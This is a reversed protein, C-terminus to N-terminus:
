DHLLIHACCGLYRGIRQLVGQQNDQWDLRRIRIGELFAIRPIDLRQVSGSALSSGSKVQSRIVVMDSLEDLTDGLERRISTDPGDVATIDKETITIDITHDTFIEITLDIM